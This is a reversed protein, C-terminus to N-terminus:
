EKESEAEGKAEPEAPDPEVPAPEIPSAARAAPQPVPELPSAARAAPQPVPELPSAARAPSPSPSPARAPDAEGAISSEDRKGMPDVLPNPIYQQIFPKLVAVWQSLVAESDFRLQLTSKSSFFSKPVHVIQVTRKPISTIELTCQELAFSHFPELDERSAFLHFFGFQSLVAVCKKL